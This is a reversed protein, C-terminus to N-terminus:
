EREVWGHFCKLLLGQLRFIKRFFFFIGLLFGKMDSLFVFYFEDAFVTVGLGVRHFITLTYKQRAHIRCLKNFIV